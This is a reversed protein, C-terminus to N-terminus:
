SSGGEKSSPLFASGRSADMVLIAGDHGNNGVFIEYEHVVNTNISRTRKYRFTKALFRELFNYPNFVTWDGIFIDSNRIEEDQTTTLVQHGPARDLSEIVRLDIGELEPLKDKQLRKVATDICKRVFRKNANNYASIWSYFVIIEM